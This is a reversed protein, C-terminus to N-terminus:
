FYDVPTQFTQQMLTAILVSRPIAHLAEVQAWRGSEALAERKCSEVEDGDDYGMGLRNRWELVESGAISKHIWRSHENSDTEQSRVVEKGQTETSAVLTNDRYAQSSRVGVARHHRTSGNFRNAIAAQSANGFIRSDNCTAEATTTM